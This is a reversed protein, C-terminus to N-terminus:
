RRRPAAVEWGDSASPPPAVFPPPPPLDRSDMFDTTVIQLGGELPTIALEHSRELCIELLDMDASSLNEYTYVDSFRWEMSPFVALIDAETALKPAFRFRKEQLGAALRSARIQPSAHDFPCALGKGCTMKQGRKPGGFHVKMGAHFECLPGHFLQCTADSCRNGFSCAAVREKHGPFQGQLFRSVEESVKNAVFYSVPAPASVEESASASASSEYWSDEDAYIETSLLFHNVLFQFVAQEYSATPNAEMISVVEDVADHFLPSGVEPLFSEIASVSHTM